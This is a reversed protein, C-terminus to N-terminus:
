QFFANSQIWDILHGMAQDVVFKRIDLEFELVIRRRSIKTKIGM